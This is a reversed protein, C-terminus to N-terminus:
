PVLRLSFTVTGQPSPQSLTEAPPHILDGLEGLAAVFKPYSPAPIALIFQHEGPTELIKGSAGKVLPAIRAAAESPNATKLIVEPLSSIDALGAAPTEKRLSRAVADAEESVKPEKQAMSYAGLKEGSRKRAAHEQLDGRRGAVGPATKDRSERETAVQPGPAQALEPASRYVYVVGLTILVLAMAELPLKIHLPFFLRSALRRWSFRERVSIATQIAATLRPPAEVEELSQLTSVTRQLLALEQRCHACEELHVEINRREAPELEDELYASLQEQIEGCRM